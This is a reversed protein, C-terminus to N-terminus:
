MFELTPQRVWIYHRNNWQGAVIDGFFTSGTYEPLVKDAAGPKQFKFCRDEAREIKITM